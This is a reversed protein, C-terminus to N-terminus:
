AEVAKARLVGASKTKKLACGVVMEAEGKKVAGPEAWNPLYVNIGNGGRLTIAHFDEMGLCVAYIDNTALAGDRLVEIRIGNWNPVQRGMGDVTTTALGLKRGISNIKVKMSPSVLLVDPDRTMKSFLTDLEETFALAADETVTALSTESTIDTATGKIAKDLGDFGEKTSDGTILTANFKRIIANKSEELKLQYEDDAADKAVRDMQWVDNLIKCETTFHKTKPDSVAGEKNLERFAATMPTIVRNYGYTLTSTGSANLCDDFTLASMLYSDTLLESIFGQVVKDQHCERIEALTTSM